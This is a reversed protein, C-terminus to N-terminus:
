FVFSKLANLPRPKTYSCILLGAALAVAAELFALVPIRNIM